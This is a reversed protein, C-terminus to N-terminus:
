AAVEETLRHGADTVLWPGSRLVERPREYTVVAAIMERWAPHHADRDALEDIERLVLAELPSLMLRGREMAGRLVRWIYALDFATIGASAPRAAHYAGRPDPELALRVQDLAFASLSEPVESAVEMAHLLLELELASHVAGDAAITRMLWGAKADDIRGTPTAGRVLYAALSEVFYISWEPSHEPCSDNLAFLALADESTRIGDPFAYKRLMLIDDAM